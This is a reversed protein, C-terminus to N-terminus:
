FSDVVYYLAVCLFFVALLAWFMGFWSDFFLIVPNSSYNLALVDIEDNLTGYSLFVIFMFMISLMAKKFNQDKGM